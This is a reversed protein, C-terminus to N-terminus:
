SGRGGVEMTASYPPHTGGTPTRCPRPRHRVVALASLPIRGTSGNRHPWPHAHTPRTRALPVSSVDISAIRVLNRTVVLISYDLFADVLVFALADQEGGRGVVFGM